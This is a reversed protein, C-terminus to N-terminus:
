QKKLTDVLKVLRTLMKKKTPSEQTVRRCIRTLIANEYIKIIDTNKFNKKKKTRFSFDWKFFSLNVGVKKKLQDITVTLIRKRFKETTTDFSIWISGYAFFPRYSNFFITKKPFKM